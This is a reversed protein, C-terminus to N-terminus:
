FGDLWNENEDGGPETFIKNLDVESRLLTNEFSINKEVVDLLEIEAFWEHNAVDRWGAEMWGLRKSRHKHLMSNILDKTLDNAKEPFEKEPFKIDKFDFGWSKELPGWPWECIPTDDFMLEYITCGLAWWDVGYGYGTMTFMEPAMYVPTGVNRYERDWLKVSLGLDGLKVYSDEYIFVNVPKVDRHIIGAFHMYTIAFLLQAAIYKITKEPVSKKGCLRGLDGYVGCETIQYVNVRDQRVGRLKVIFEFDMAFHIKKEKVLQKLYKRQEEQDDPYKIKPQVKLVWSTGESRHRVRYVQGYGGEGICAGIEYDNLNVHPCKNERIRIQVDSKITRNLASLRNYAAIKENETLRRGRVYKELGPRQVITQDDPNRNPAPDEEPRVYGTAQHSVALGM